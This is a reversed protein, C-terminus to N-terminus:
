NEDLVAHAPLDSPLEVQPIKALAAQWENDSVGGTEPCWKRLETPLGLEALQNWECQRWVVDRFVKGTHFELSVRTDRVRLLVHDVRVWLRQLCFVCTPMVRIKCTLTVQGNDHLDDEYLVVQDFLLIPVSQDQLLALNMGSSELPTWSVDMTTTCAFPTSFTWDYHFNSHAAGDLSKSTWLKADAVQLVSVGKNEHSSGLPISQHAKAWELLAPYAGFKLKSGGEGKEMTVHARPFVMEPLCVHRHTMSHTEAHEITPRPPQASEQLRETAQTFWADDGISHQQTSIRWGHLEIGVVEGEKQIMTAHYDSLLPSLHRRKSVLSTTRALFPREVSSKTTRPSRPPSRPPSPPPTVTSEEANMWTEQLHVWEVGCPAEEKSQFLATSRRSKSEGDLLQWEEYTMLCTQEQNWVLRPNRIEISFQRGEHCAYAELLTQILQSRNVMTGFPDIRCMNESFVADSFEEKCIAGTFWQVFFAHLREIENRCAEEM